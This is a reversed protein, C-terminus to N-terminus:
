STNVKKFLLKKASSKKEGNLHWRAFPISLIFGSIVFFLPVGMGGELIISKWYGEKVLQGHLFKEDIYHNIHMIVVVSFIALFRLGDVEPLYATSYTIRRFKSFFSSPM